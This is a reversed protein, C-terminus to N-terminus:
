LLDNDYVQVRTWKNSSDEVFKLHIPDIQYANQGAVDDFHVSLAYSFSNDVVERAETSSPPGIFFAKVTEITGLTKLSTLFAQKEDETLDTRLWFYVNHVM